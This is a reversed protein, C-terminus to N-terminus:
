GNYRALAVFVHGTANNESFGVAVIKGDPQILLAGAGDDGYDDGSREVAITRDTEVQYVDRDPRRNVV